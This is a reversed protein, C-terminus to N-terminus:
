ADGFDANEWAHMAEDENKADVYFKSFMYIAFRKKKSKVKKNM